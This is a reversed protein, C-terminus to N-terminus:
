FSWGHPFIFGIKLQILLNTFACLCLLTDLAKSRPVFREKSFLWAEMAVETATPKAVSQAAHPQSNETRALLIKEMYSLKRGSQPRLKSEIRWVRDAPTDTQCEMARPTSIPRTEQTSHCPANMEQGTSSTQISESERVSSSTTPRSRSAAQGHSQMGHGQYQQMDGQKDSGHPSSGQSGLDDQTPTDQRSVDSSTPRAEIKKKPRVVDKVGPGRIAGDRGSRWFSGESGKKGLLEARRHREVEMQIKLQALKEEMELVSGAGKNKAKMTAM